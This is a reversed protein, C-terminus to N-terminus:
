ISFCLGLITLISLKPPIVNNVELGVIFSCCDFCHLILCLICVSIMSCFISLGSIPGFVTLQGKVFSCSFSCLFRNLLHYQLLQVDM